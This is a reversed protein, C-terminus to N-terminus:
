EALGEGHENIQKVCFDYMDATHLAEKYWDVTKEVAQRLNWVAEWNLMFYSKSVDLNLMINEHVDNPNHVDVVQGKGYTEVLLRVVDIVPKNNSVRPGFNFSESYKQPEALLKQGVRLYGSLPELVHEWPRTSYPNRIEINKGAEISRICDPILRNEAWDGGGIVNGARVSAVAVGHKDYDKPNFFSNRYASILLEACGKSASYPDYGGMCDCEKYGWIQEKNEYCKDSTVMIVAKVCSHHRVAELVNLSGIFNTEFTEKPAEYSTKVLAQAALHFIIEPQYKAIVSSLKEYDRVDGRIDAFLKNQLKCAAFNDRPTGLNLAYGVVKAGLENLWVALWSGKFGTHGTILVTKGSYINNYM